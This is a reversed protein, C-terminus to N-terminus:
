SSTSSRNRLASSSGLMGRCIKVPCPPSLTRDRELTNTPALLVIAEEAKRPDFGLRSTIWSFMWQTTEESLEEAPLSDTIRKPHITLALFCDDPIFSVDLSKKGAPKSEAGNAVSTGNESDSGYGAFSVLVAVTLICLLSKRM